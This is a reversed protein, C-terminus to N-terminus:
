LSRRLRVVDVGDARVRHRMGIPVFGRKLVLCLMTPNDAFVDVEVSIFGLDRATDLGRQILAPGIGQGHWDPRVGLGLLEFGMQDAITVALLGIITGDAACARFVRGGSPDALWAHVIAQTVPVQSVSLFRRNEEANWIDVFAAELAETGETDPHAEELTYPRV